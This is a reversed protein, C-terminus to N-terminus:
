DPIDTSMLPMRRDRQCIPCAEIHANRANESRVLERRVNNKWQLYKAVSMSKRMNTDAMVASADGRFAAKWQEDLADYIPCSM